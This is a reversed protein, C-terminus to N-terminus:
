HVLPCGVMAVCQSAARRNQREIHVLVGIVHVKAGFRGTVNIRKHVGDAPSISIMQVPFNSTLSGLPAISVFLFPLAIRMIVVTNNITEAVQMARVVACACCAFLQLCHLSCRRAQM